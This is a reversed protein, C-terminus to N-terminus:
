GLDHVDAGDTWPYEHDAHDRAVSDQTSVVDFRVGRFSADQLNDQWSM